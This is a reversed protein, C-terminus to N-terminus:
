VFDTNGVSWFKSLGKSEWVRFKPPGKVGTGLIKPTRKLYLKEGIKVGELNQSLVKSILCNTNSLKYKYHKISGGPM